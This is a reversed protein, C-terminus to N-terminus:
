RNSTRIALDAQLGENAVLLMAGTVVYSAIMFGPREYSLVVSGIVALSFIVFSGNDFQNLVALATAVALYNLVSAAIVTSDIRPSLRKGRRALFYVLAALSSITVWGHIAIVGLVIGEARAGSQLLQRDSL